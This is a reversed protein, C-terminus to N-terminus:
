AGGLRHGSIYMLWSFNNAGICFATGSMGIKGILSGFWCRTGGSRCALAENWKKKEENGVQGDPGFSPGPNIAGTATFTLTDGQNVDRGTGHWWSQPSGANPRRGNVTTTFTSM